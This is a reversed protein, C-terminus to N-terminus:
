PLQTTTTSAAKANGNGAVAEHYETTSRRLKQTNTTGPLAASKAAFRRKRGNPNRAPWIRGLGKAATCDENCWSVSLYPSWPDQLKKCTNSVLSDVNWNHPLHLTTPQTLDNNACTQASIWSTPTPCAPCAWVLTKYHQSQTNRRPSRTMQPSHKSSSSNSQQTTQAATFDITKGALKDDSFLCYIIRLNSNLPNSSFCDTSRNPASRSLTLPALAQSDM